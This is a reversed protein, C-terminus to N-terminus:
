MNSCEVFFVVDLDIVVYNHNHCLHYATTGSTFSFAPTPKTNSSSAPMAGFSFLGTGAPKESVTTTTDKEKDCSEATASPESAKTDVIYWFSISVGIVYFHSIVARLISLGVNIFM